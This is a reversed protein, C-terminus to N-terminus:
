GGLVWAFLGKEVHGLKKMSDTVLVRACNRKGEVEGGAGGVGFRLRREVLHDVMEVTRRFCMTNKSRRAFFTGHIKGVSYGLEAVGHTRGFGRM